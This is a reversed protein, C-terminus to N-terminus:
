EFQGVVIIANCKNWPFPLTLNVPFVKAKKQPSCFALYLIVPLADEIDQIQDLNSIGILYLLHHEPVLWPHSTSYNTRAWVRLVRTLNDRKCDILSRDFGNAQRSMSGM